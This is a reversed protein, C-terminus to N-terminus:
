SGGGRGENGPVQPISGAALLSASSPLPSLSPCYCLPILTSASKWMVPLKIVYLFSSSPSFLLPAHLQPFTWTSPASHLATCHLATCHLEGDVLPESVRPTPNPLLGARLCMAERGGWRRMEWERVIGAGTACAVPSIPKINDAGQVEKTIHISTNCM